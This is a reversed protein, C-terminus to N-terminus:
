DFHKIRINYKAFKNLILNDANKDLIINNQLLETYEYIAISFYTIWFMQETKQEVQNRELQNKLQQQKFIKKFLVRKLLINFIVCM